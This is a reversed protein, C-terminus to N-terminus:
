IKCINLRQRSPTQPSENQAILRITRYYDKAKDGQSIKSMVKKTSYHKSLNFLCFRVFHDCILGGLNYYNNKGLTSM